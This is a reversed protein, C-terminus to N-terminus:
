YRRFDGSMPADIPNTQTMRSASAFGPSKSWRAGKEATEAGASRLIAQAKSSRGEDAHVSILVGGVAVGFEYYKVTEEPINLTTALAAESDGKATIVENLVTALPGIACVPGVGPLKLDTAFTADGALKKAASISATLIGIDEAKYGAAKLDAVAKEAQQPDKFLKVATKAM